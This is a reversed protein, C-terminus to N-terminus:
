RPYQPHNFNQTPNPGSHSNYGPYPSNGTHQQRPPFAPPAHNPFRPTPSLNIPMQPNPNQQPMTPPRNPNVPSFNTPSPGNFPVPPNNQAPSFNQRRYDTLPTPSYQNNTPVYPSSRYQNNNSHQPSSGYHNNNSHQPSPRYQNNNPQQPLPRYKNHNPSDFTRNQFGNYSSQGNNSRENYGRQYNQSSQPRSNREFSNPSQNLHKEYNNPNERRDFNKTPSNYSKYNKNPSPRQDFSRRGSQDNRSFKSSHHTPSWDSQRKGSNNQRQDRSNHPFSNARPARRDIDSRGYDHRDHNRSFSSPKPNQWPDDQPPNNPTYSQQRAQHYPNDSTNSDYQQTEYKGRQARFTTVKPQEQVRDSDGWDDFAELEEQPNPLKQNPAEPNNSNKSPPRAAYTPLKESGYNREYYSSKQVAKPNKAFFEIKGSEKVGNEKTKYLQTEKLATKFDLEAFITEDFCNDKEPPLSFIKRMEKLDEKDMYSLLGSSQVVEEYKENDLIFVVLTRYFIQEPFISILKQRKTQILFNEEIIANVKKLPIMKAGM